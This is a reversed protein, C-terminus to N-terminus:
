QHDDTSPSMLILRLTGVRWALPVVPVVAEVLATMRTLEICWQPSRLSVSLM